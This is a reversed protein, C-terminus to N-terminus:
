AVMMSVVTNLIAYEFAVILGCILVFSIAKGASWMEGEKWFLPYKFSAHVAARLDRKDTFIQRSSEGEEPVLVTFHNPHNPDPVVGRLETATCM